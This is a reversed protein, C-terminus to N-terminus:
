KDLIRKVAAPAVSIFKPWMEEKNRAPYCLINTLSNAIARVVYEDAENVEPWAMLIGKVDDRELGFITGFEWDPYFPGEVTARLCERIVEREKEDLNALSVTAKRGHGHTESIVSPVETCFETACLKVDPPLGAHPFHPTFWFTFSGPRHQPRWAAGELLDGVFVFYGGCPNHSQGPECGYIFAGVDKLPDAGLENLLRLFEDPYLSSLQAAFNKWLLCEEDGDDGATTIADAYLAATADRDCVVAQEGVRIEKIM